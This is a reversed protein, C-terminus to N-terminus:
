VMILDEDEEDASCVSLTAIVSPTSVTETGDNHLASLDRSETASGADVIYEPTAERSRSEEPGIETMVEDLDDVDEDEFNLTDADSQESTEDLVVAGVANAISQGDTPIAYKADTFDYGGDTFSESRMSVDDAIVKGRNFVTSIGDQVDVSGPGVSSGGELRLERLVSSVSGATSSADSAISIGTHYAPGPGAPGYEAPPLSPEFVGGTGDDNGGAWLPLFKYENNTLTLLLHGTMNMPIEFGIRVSDQSFPHLLSKLNEQFSEPDFAHQSVMLAGGPGLNLVARWAPDRRFSPRSTLVNQTAIWLETALHYFNLNKTGVTFLNFTWTLNGWKDRINDYIFPCLAKQVDNFYNYTLEFRNFHQIDVYTARHDDIRNLRDADLLKGIVEIVVQTKWVKKLAEALKIAKEKAALCTQDDPLSSFMVILENLRIWEPIQLDDFITDSMLQKVPRSVREVMARAAHQILNNLDDGPDHRRRGFVTYTAAKPVGNPAAAEEIALENVLIRFASRTVDESQLAVGIQLSEEPLVEIFMTNNASMLWQLVQDRVVHTCDLIKAVAVLTWVRPASDVLVRKDSIMYMLRLINVRHRVACYDPIRRWSPVPEPTLDKKSKKELLRAAAGKTSTYTRESSKATQPGTERLSQAIATEIAREMAVDTKETIQRSVMGNPTSGPKATATAEDSDEPQPDKWCGCIDDHGSVVYDDTGYKDYATWWNIIGPTLSVETMQFVLDDGESPPTLDLVFKIGDPLKNVLKRRRMIRYQHTPSLMEAFKSSGTAKLKESHMRFEVSNWAYVFCDVNDAPKTPAPFDVFVLTDGDSLENRIDHLLFQSYRRREIHTMDAKLTFAPQSTPAYVDEQSGSGNDLDDQLNDHTTDTDEVTDKTDFFDYINVEDTNNAIGHNDNDHDPAYQDWSSPLDDGSPPEMPIGRDWDDM